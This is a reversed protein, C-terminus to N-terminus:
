VGLKDYREVVIRLHNFATPEILHHAHAQTFADTTHSGFEQIGVPPNLMGTHNAFISHVQVNTRPLRCLVRTQKANVDQVVLTARYCRRTHQHSFGNPIFKASEIFFVWNVEVINVKAIPEHFGSIVVNHAHIGHQQM